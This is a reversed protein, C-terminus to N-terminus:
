RTGPGVRSEEGNRGIEREIDEIQYEEVLDEEEEVDRDQEELERSAPKLSSFAPPNTQNPEPLRSLSSSM